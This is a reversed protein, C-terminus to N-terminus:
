IHSSIFDPTDRTLGANHGVIVISTQCALQGVNRFCRQLLEGFASRCMYYGSQHWNEQSSLLCKQFAQDAAEPHRERENAPYHDNLQSTDRGGKIGHKGVDKWDDNHESQQAPAINTDVDAGHDRCRDRQPNGDVSSQMQHGPELLQKPFSKRTLRSNRLSEFM